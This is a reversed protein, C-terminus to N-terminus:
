DEPSRVRRKLWSSLSRCTQRTLMGRGIYIEQIGVAPERTASPDYGVYWGPTGTSSPFTHFTDVLGYLLGNTAAYALTGNDRLGWSFVFGIKKNNVDTDESLQYIQTIGGTQLIGVIQNNTNSMLIGFYNDADHVQMAIWSLPYNTVTNAYPILCAVAIWGGQSSFEENVVNGSGPNSAIDLEFIGKSDNTGIDPTCLTAAQPDTNAGELQPLEVELQYGDFVTVGFRKTPAGADLARIGSLQYWGDDRIKRYYTTSIENSEGHATSCFLECVTEDIVGGDSRRLCVSFIRNFSASLAEARSFQGSASGNIAVVLTDTVGTSNIDLLFSGSPAPNSKTFAPDFSTFGRDSSQTDDWLNTRDPWFFGDPSLEPAAQTVQRFRGIGDDYVYYDAPDAAGTYAFRFYGSGGAEQVTLPANSRWYIRPYLDLIPMSNHGLGLGSNGARKIM